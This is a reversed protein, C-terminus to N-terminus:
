PVCAVSGVLWSQERELLQYKDQNKIMTAGFSPRDIGKSPTPDILWKRPSSRLLCVGLRQCLQQSSTRIAALRPYALVTQADRKWKTFRGAVILFGRDTVRFACMSPIYRMGPFSLWVTELSCRTHRACCMTQSDLSLQTTRQSWPHYTTISICYSATSWAPRPFHKKM